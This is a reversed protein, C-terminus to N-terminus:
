DSVQHAIKSATTVELELLQELSAENLDQKLSSPAQTNVNTILTFLVLATFSLHLIKKNSNDSIKPM